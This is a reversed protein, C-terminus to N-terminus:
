DSKKKELLTFKGDIVKAHYRGHKFIWVIKKGDKAMKAWKSSKKPNQEIFRYGEADIYRLGSPHLIGVKYSTDEVQITKDGSFIGEAIKPAIKSLDKIKLM